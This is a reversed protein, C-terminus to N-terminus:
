LDSSGKPLVAPANGARGQRHGSEQYRDLLRTLLRSWNRDECHPSRPGSPRRAAQGGELRLLAGLRPVGLAVELLAAGNDAADAVQLRPAM